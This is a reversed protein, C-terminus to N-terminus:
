CKNDQFGHLYAIFTDADFSGHTCYHTDHLLQRAEEKTIDIGQDVALHQLDVVSFSKYVYDVDDIYKLAQEISQRVHLFNTNSGERDILFILNSLICAAKNLQKPLTAKRKM